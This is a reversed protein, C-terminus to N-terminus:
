AKDLHKKFPAAADLCRVINQEIALLKSKRGDM